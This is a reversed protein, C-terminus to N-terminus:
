QGDVSFALLANGPKGAFRGYGSNVYLMGGAITAGGTDLSGGNALVGNITEYQQATDVDWAITGDASAYARLHGDLSGSFAVGPIVTVAASQANVCSQESWSCKAPPAPQHWVRDGTELSLATLSGAGRPPGWALDSVAAYVHTGDAAPGWEVGGLVGGEGVRTQWVIEGARDPDLGYVM